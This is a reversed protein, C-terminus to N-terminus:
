ASGPNSGSHWEGRPEQHNAPSDWSRLNAPLFNRESLLPRWYIENSLRNTPHGLSGASRLFQAFNEVFEEKQKVLWLYHCISANTSLQCLFNWFPLSKRLFM